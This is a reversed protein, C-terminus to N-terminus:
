HSAPQFLIRFHKKTASTGFGLNEGSRAAIILVFGLAQMALYKSGAQHASGISLRTSQRDRRILRPIDKCIAESTRADNNGWRSYSV